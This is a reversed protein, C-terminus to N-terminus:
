CNYFGRESISFGSEQIGGTRPITTKWAEPLRRRFRQHDWVHACFTPTSFVNSCTKSCCAEHPYGQTRVGQASNAESYSCVIDYKRNIPIYEFRRPSELSIQLAGFILAKCCERDHDSVQSIDAFVDFNISECAHETRVLAVRWTLLTEM